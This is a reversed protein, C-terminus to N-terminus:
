PGGHHRSVRTDRVAIHRIPTIKGTQMQNITKIKANWINAAHPMEVHLFKIRGLYALEYHEFCVEKKTSLFPPKNQDNRVQNGQVFLTEVRRFAKNVFDTITQTM